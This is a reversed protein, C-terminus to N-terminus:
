LECRRSSPLTNKAQVIGPLDRSNIVLISYISVEPEAVLRADPIPGRTGEM